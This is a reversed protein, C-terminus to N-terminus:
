DTATKAQRQKDRERYGDIETAIQRKMTELGTRDKEAQRVTETDIDKDTRRRRDGDRETM